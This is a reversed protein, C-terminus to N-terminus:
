FAAGHESDLYPGNYNSPKMTHAVAFYVCKCGYGRAIYCIKVVEAFPYDGTAQIQMVNFDKVKAFIERLGMDNTIVYEPQGRNKGLILKRNSGCEVWVDYEFHIRYDTIRGYYFQVEEGDPLSLWVNRFINRRLLSSVGTVVDNCVANEATKLVFKHNDDFDFGMSGFDLLFHKTFFIAHNDDIRLEAYWYYNTLWYVMFGFGALGVMKVLVRM